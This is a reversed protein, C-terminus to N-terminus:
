SPEIVALTSLRPFVLAYALAPTIIRAGRSAPEIYAMTATLGDLPVVNSYRGNRSSAAAEPAAQLPEAILAGYQTRSVRVPLRNLASVEGSPLVQVVEPVAWVMWIPVLM